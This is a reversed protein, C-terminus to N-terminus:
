SGGYALKININNIRVSLIFVHVELSEKIIEKV